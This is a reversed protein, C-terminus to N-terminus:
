LRRAEAAILTFGDGVMRVPETGDWRNLRDALKLVRGMPLGTVKLVGGHELTPMLIAVRAEAVDKCVYAIASTGSATERWVTVAIM